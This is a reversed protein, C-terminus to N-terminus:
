CLAMGARATSEPVMEKPKTDIGTLNKVAAEDSCTLKLM